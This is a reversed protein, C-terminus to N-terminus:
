RGNLGWFCLINRELMQFVAIITCNIIIKWFLLLGIYSTHTHPVIASNGRLEQTGTRGEGQLHPLRPQVAGQVWGRGRRGQLVQLRGASILHYPHWWLCTDDWWVENGWGQLQVSRVQCLGWVRPGHWLLLVEQLNEGAATQREKGDDTQRGETKRGDTKRDDTQRGYTQRTSRQRTARRCHHLFQANYCNAHGGSYIEADSIWWCHCM